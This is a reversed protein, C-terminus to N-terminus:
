MHIYYLASDVAFLHRDLVTVILTCQVIVHAALSSLLLPPYYILRSPMFCSAARYCSSPCHGCVSTFITMGLILSPMVVCRAVSASWYPWACAPSWRFPFYVLLSSLYYVPVRLIESIAFVAFSLCSCYRLPSSEVSSFSEFSV